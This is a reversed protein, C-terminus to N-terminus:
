SSLLRSQRKGVAGHHDDLVVLELAPRRQLHEGVEADAPQQLGGVAVARERQEAGVRARVDDDAVEVHRAHVADLEQAVDGLAAGARRDDDRAAQVVADQARGLRGGAPEAELHEARDALREGRAPQQLGDAQM